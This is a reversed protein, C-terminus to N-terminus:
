TPDVSYSGSAPPRGLTRKQDLGITEKKRQDMEKVVETALAGKRHRKRATNPPVSSSETSVLTKDKAHGISRQPNYNNGDLKKRKRRDVPVAITDLDDQEVVTSM